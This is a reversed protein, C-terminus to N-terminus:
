LVTDAADDVIVDFGLEMREEANEAFEATLDKAHSAM